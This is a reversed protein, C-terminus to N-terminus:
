NLLNNFCHVIVPEKKGFFCAIFTWTSAEQAGALARLPLLIKYCDQQDM